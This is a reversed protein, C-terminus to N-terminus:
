WKWEVPGFQVCGSWILRTTTCWGTTVPRRCSWYWGTPYETQVPRVTSIYRSLFTVINFLLVWQWGTLLPDCCRCPTCPHPIDIAYFPYNTFSLISNDAMFQWRYNHYHDSYKIIDLSSWFLLDFFFFNLRQGIQCNNCLLLSCHSLSSSWLLFLFIVNLLKSKPGLCCKDYNPCKVKM